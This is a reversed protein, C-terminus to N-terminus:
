ELEFKSIDKNSEGKYFETGGTCVFSGPSEKMKNVYINIDESM